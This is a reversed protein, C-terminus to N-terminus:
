KQLLLWTNREGTQSDFPDSSHVDKLLEQTAFTVERSFCQIKGKLHGMSYNCHQQSDITSLLRPAVSNQAPPNIIKIM